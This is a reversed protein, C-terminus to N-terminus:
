VLTGRLQRSEPELPGRKVKGEEPGTKALGLCLRQAPGIQQEVCIWRDESQPTVCRFRLPVIHESQMRFEGFPEGLHLPRAFVLFRAIRDEGRHRTTRGEEGIQLGRADLGVIALPVEVHVRDTDRQRREKRTLTHALSESLGM